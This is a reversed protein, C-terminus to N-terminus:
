QRLHEILLDLFRKQRSPARSGALHSAPDLYRPFPGALTSILLTLKFTLRQESLKGGVIERLTARVQRVATKMVSRLLEGFPDAPEAAMQREMLILIGPYHTLHRMVEAAWRRLREEPRLGPTELLRMVEKFGRDFREAAQVLMQEKSSFYYNVAAVNVGSEQAITRVPVDTTGLKGM